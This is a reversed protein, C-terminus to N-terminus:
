LVLIKKSVSFGSQNSLNIIYVGPPLDGKDIVFRREIPKELSFISGDVSHVRVTTNNHINNIVVREHDINWEIEELNETIGSLQINLQFSLTDPNVMEYPCNVMGFYSVILNVNYLGEDLYTHSVNPDGESTYTNGDGFDWTYLNGNESTSADFDVTLGDQNTIVQAQVDHKNLSWTSLSDMVVDHSIQQLYSATNQDIGAIYSNGVASENFISSYFVCAALYSGNVAAHSNDGSHLVITSDQTKSYSWAAGVPSVMANNDETMQLYSERLRGSMGEFTCLPEYFQCNQSDGYRRGWTMFFMVQGCENNAYVSDSLAKAFPFVETEVQSPPFSPLQSQDQLVVFDWIGERIKDLSNLNTSHGNLTYGGPTNQDTILVKGQDAALQKIINPLNNGYTYSNGLFLVRTTDQAGLGLCVVSLFTLIKNKM